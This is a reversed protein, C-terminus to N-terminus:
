TNTSCEDEEYDNLRQFNESVAADYKASNSAKKIRKFAKAPDPFSYCFYSWFKTMRMLLHSNGSLLKSYTSFVQRHFQALLESKEKKGPLALQKIKAPLFPDKLIGRGVMCIAPLKLFDNVQNFDDPTLIDGNYVLTHKSLDAAGIFIERDAIGRYLQKAIRPHLIVENLPFENLVPVVKFIEDSSMLGSRLKVSVRCSLKPMSEALIRRIKDPFPLLGSGLGKNTVMPYPCGLNWNIEGYSLDCITKALYLFDEANGALVHPILQYGLNNLPMIDRLHAKKITGDNQRVIYPAFYKDSNGFTNAFATRYVFDTVEQIPAFYIRINSNTPM